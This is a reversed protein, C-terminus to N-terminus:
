RGFLSNNLEDVSSSFNFANNVVFYNQPDLVRNYAFRALELRSAEFSMQTMLQRVQDATFFNSGIIQKAVTLRTSEFNQQMVQTIAQSFAGPNMPIAANVPSSVIQQPFMEVRPQVFPNFQQNQFQNQQQNYIPNGFQDLYVVQQQNQIPNGFQDIYFVQQQNQIPNGFQDLYFGQQQNQIQNGFQDIYFGQQQNQIQNGFQDIFFGQQQNQILNGFQDLYVGQQQNQILNGFQDFYVGQQQNQVLNGFQDYYSHHQIPQNSTFPVLIYEGRAPDWMSSFQGQHSIMPNWTNFNMQFGPAQSQHTTTVTQQQVVVQADITAFLAFSLALPLLQSKM